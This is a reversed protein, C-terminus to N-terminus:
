GPNFGPEGWKRLDTHFPYKLLLQQSNPARLGTLFRQGLVISQTDEGSYTQNYFRKFEKAYDSVEGQDQKQDNFRRASVLQDSTLGVRVSLARKLM